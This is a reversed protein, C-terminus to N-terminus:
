LSAAPELGSRLLDLPSPLRTETSSRRLARARFFEGIQKIEWDLSVGGTERVRRRVTEGLRELDIARAAGTNILFNCHMESVQARRRGDAGRCGAADM